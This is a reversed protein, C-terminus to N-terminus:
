TWAQRPMQECLRAHWGVVIEPPLTSGDEYTSHLYSTSHGQKANLATSTADGGSGRKPPPLPAAGLDAAPLPFVAALGAPDDVWFPCCSRWAGDCARRIFPLRRAARWVGVLAALSIVLGLALGPHAPQGHLYTLHPTM